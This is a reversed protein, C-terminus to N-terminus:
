EFYSGVSIKAGNSWAYADMKSKGEPKLEKILIVGEGTEVLIGAKSIEPIKGPVTTEKLGEVMETKLIKIVSGNYKTCAVPWMTMCRVHNHIQQASQHWNIVSDEKKFKKAIDPLYGVFM